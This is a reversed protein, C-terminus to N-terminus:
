IHILSLSVLDALPNQLGGFILDDGAGGEITDNGEGGVVTDNGGDAKVFDDDFGASITDDGAGGSISDDDDGTIITDNGAGGFVVDRDNNVDTDADYGPFPFPNGSAPDPSQFPYGVDPLATGSPGAVDIYDDGAGGFVEDRGDADTITDDGAGGLILDNGLGGAIADNGDGGFIQDDGLGADISDDGGMADIVDSNTGETGPVISDGSDVADGDADVFVPNATVVDDGATGQITGDNKGTVTFTLNATDTAGSPDTITYTVTTDTSQGLGLTDFDGNADFNVTGDPNITFLGGNDGVVAVGVNTPEGNVAVVTLDDGDPDSDNNLASGFDGASGEDAVFTDDEAFPSRNLPADGRIEEIERFAIVRGDPNGEADLFVVRGDFGNGNSDATPSGAGNPSTLIFPGQGTIDLVDHDNGGAGGDVFDGEGALIRDADAGAYAIDDGGGLSLVDDGRGGFVTDNGDNAKLLDDGAGGKIIDNGGGGSIDDDGHEGYLTDDENAGVIRDDGEGGFVTDSGGVGNLTDDGTGGFILDDGRGGSISDDGAGGFIEDNGDGALITDNGDFGYILDDDGAEGPLIADNNDVRDGDPDGMYTADILDDGATGEVTGDLTSIDDFVLNDVAGSGRVYVDMRFVGDVNFNAVVQGNDDTYATSKKILTGDEDYFKVVAGEEIDLFTLSKVDAGNEFDFRLLGGRANDDPDDNDGDESIILVNGLNNTHLDRDGGTPNATDFAMARDPVSNDTFGSITVGQAAHETDVITGASLDNFDITKTM